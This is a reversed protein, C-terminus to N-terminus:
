TPRTEGGERRLDFQFPQGHYQVRFALRKWHPPLHPDLAPGEQTLRLGAFGFVVAEWLGGASAAHIGEGANGRVDALDARAARLFHEYAVDPQGLRAAVWAHMAPGLSSGYEHDTIPVYYDWNAQWTKRDFTDGLLALLAIVDAQKLVKYRNTKEIGLLAQMSETRGEFAPWDVDKLGFFGEFQEILGTEPDHLFILGDIVARWRALREPTLDLLASLEGARAPDRANLWDLAALATQLHWRAMANTYANNDVHEHYEDCGIVDRLSFRGDAEPEARAGWFVATELIVPIAVARWFEDDGTAQWYQHLAYAVDASIHIQIDGTWIRILKKPDHPDPVWTPTVEDGTEASEWPFQAGSFGNAAAKRRAGPLAHYRYMLMNRALAPQTFTFFPLAFIETDWFVHGAYVFGSLTKAGISVREDRTPAAIRLQFLGHRLALQAEDDGEIVVDSAAWFEDWARANEAFLADFGAAALAAAQERAAALPDDSDRITFVSVFKEFTAARGAAVRGEVELAPCGPCDRGLVPGDLGAVALRAALAVTKATSRTCVVLSAEEGSVNQSIQNWHLYHHNEVRSDLMARVRVHADAELPTVAVRLALTHEDALSAFRSFHLDVPKGGEPTWRLRRHLAGTRLDLWRAYASVAGREMSFREGDVWIEFTTWDPANALETFIIPRDDYIGHIFTAQRDGPYREELTGRTGLYGNGTTFVTEHHHQREPDFAPESVRWLAARRLTELTIGELNPLVLDAAGVREAPGLGIAAMGAALAAQIGAAADEVVLCHAPPVDLQRAAYLFLDPHPKQRAVSGGHALADLCAAIGLRQVVEPSNKSASVVAIKVGAARLEDLLPRVGPLLDAPSITQLLDLYYSNKRAMWAAMEEESAARNGLRLIHELSARRPVGRLSENDARTFPIGLEDALRKWAQYHFEATDTLVGDLDFLVASLTPLLSM